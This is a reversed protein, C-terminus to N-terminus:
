GLFSLGSGGMGVRIKWCHEQAEAMRAEIGSAEEAEDLTADVDMSMASVEAQVHAHTVGPQAGGEETAETAETVQAMLTKPFSTLSAGHM